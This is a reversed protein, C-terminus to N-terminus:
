GQQYFRRFPAPFATIGVYPWNNKNTGIDVNVPAYKTLPLMPSPQAAGVQIPNSFEAAM